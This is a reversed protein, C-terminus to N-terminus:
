RNWELRDLHKSVQREGEDEEELQEEYLRILKERYDLSLSLTVDTGDSAFVSDLHYGTTGESIEVTVTKVRFTFNHEVEIEAINRM